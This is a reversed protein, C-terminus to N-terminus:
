NILIVHDYKRINLNLVLIATGSGSWQGPRLPTGNYIITTSPRIRFPLIWNNEADTGIEKEWKQDKTQVRADYLTDNFLIVKTSDVGVTGVITIPDSSNKMGLGEYITVPTTVPPDFDVRSVEVWTGGTYQLTINDGNHMVFVPLTIRQTNNNRLYVKGMGMSKLTFFQGEHGAAIQSGNATTWNYWCSKTDNYIIEPQLDTIGTVDIDASDIYVPHYSATGKITVITTPTKTGVAFTDVYIKQPKIFRSGGQGFVLFPFLFLLIIVASKIRSEM